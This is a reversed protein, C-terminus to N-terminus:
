PRRTASVVVGDRPRLSIQANLALEKPAGLRFPSDGRSQRPPLLLKVIGPTIWPKANPTKATTRAKAKLPQSFAGKLPWCGYLRRSQRLISVPFALQWSRVVSALVLVAEMWAFNEGICIRSGAGFPFYAYRPRSLSAEPLFRDPDFRMPEPYFRPDRHIAIQPVLLLSGAQISLGRYVYPTAVARATVWVPPYLRLAESAVRQTYPLREYIQTATLPPRADQAAFAGIAEECVRQQIESHQAMLYFIFSLGNATTEHGALLLTLCEDRIQRDTMSGTGGELDQSALLMSLLDGRDQNSSRRGAIMSYILADLKQQSQRIRRIFGFPMKLMLEPFPLFALPLFGMFATVSDSITQVESAVDSDFLCKGTIRLTLQLMVRHIDFTAGSQWGSTMEHTFQLMTEGYASIRQRHFAPQVLRRQRMHLPEESTLLGEGLAFKARQMVIGRHQMAADRILVEQVMDPHNFQFIHRGFAKYHVIDGYVRANEQLFDHTSLKLLGPNRM